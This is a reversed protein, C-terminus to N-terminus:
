KFKSLLIRWFERIINGNYSIDICNIDINRVDNLYYGSNVLRFMSKPTLERYFNIDLKRNVYDNYFEEIFKIADVIGAREYALMISGLVSFMYNQHLVQVEDNIGKVDINLGSADHWFFLILTSSLKVVSEAVVKQKFEIFDGFRTYQLDTPRNVYVADNAIRIVEIPQINNAEFLQIKAKKIGEYITRYTASAELAPKGKNEEKEKAIQWGIFEERYRKDSYLLYQYFEDNLIGYERCMSINAARIDYEMIRGSIFRSDCFYNQRSALKMQEETLM